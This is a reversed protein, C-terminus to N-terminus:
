DFNVQHVQYFFSTLQYELDLLATTLLHDKM